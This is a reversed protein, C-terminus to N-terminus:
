PISLDKPFPIIPTRSSQMSRNRKVGSVSPSPHPIPGAWLVEKLDAVHAADGSGCHHLFLETERAPSGPDSWVEVITEGDQDKLWYYGPESPPTVAYRM